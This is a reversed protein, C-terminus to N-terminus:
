LCKLCITELDRDVAANASSPPAPERTLVASLIEMASHGSFPPRGTVCEFLVASLGYVDTATSLVRTDGRAQEPSMYAPTGMVAHTATLTADREALKALGFDTLHPEDEDDLLVNAPKLDRHLIGHQHAYHVARALKVVLQAALAVPLPGDALRQQLTPGEILAMVFFQHGDQEGIDHIPVINPHHLNAAARAEVRFRAQQESSAIVGATMLKLAVSRDLGAQRARYVVGMGGRAIESLIEYDGLRRAVTGVSRV